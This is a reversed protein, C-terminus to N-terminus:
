TVDKAPEEESCKPFTAKDKGHIDNEFDAAYLELLEEHEQTTM